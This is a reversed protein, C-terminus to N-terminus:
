SPSRRSPPHLEGVGPRGGPVKNLKVQTGAPITVQVVAHPRRPLGYKQKAFDPSPLRGRHVHSTFHTGSPIGSKLYQKAQTLSTFRSVRRPETLRVPPTLKDRATEARFFAATSDRRLAQWDLRKGAQAASRSSVRKSLARATGRRAAGGLQLGYASGPALCMLLAAILVLAAQKKMDHCGGESDFIEMEAWDTRALWKLRGAVNVAM